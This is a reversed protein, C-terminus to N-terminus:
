LAFEWSSQNTEFAVEHVAEPPQLPDFAVEPVWLTPGSRISVLKVSAHLLGKPVVWCVRATVTAGAGSKEIMMEFFTFFVLTWTSDEVVVIEILEWPPNLEAIASEAEGEDKPLVGMVYWNESIEREDESYAVPLTNDMVLEDVM